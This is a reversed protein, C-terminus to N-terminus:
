VYKDKLYCVMKGLINQLLIAQELHICEMSNVKEGDIYQVINVNGDFESDESIEIYDGTNNDYVRMIQEKYYQSM